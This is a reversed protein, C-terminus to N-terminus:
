LYSLFHIYLPHTPWKLSVSITYIYTTYLFPRFECAHKNRAGVLNPFVLYLYEYEYYLKSMSSTSVCQIYSRQPGVLYPGYEYEYYLKSMSSTSVCQIYSRQPGVLYPGNEKCHATIISGICTSEIAFINSM